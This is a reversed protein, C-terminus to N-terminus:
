QVYDAQKIVTVVLVVLVLASIWVVISVPTKKRFLLVSLVLDIILTIM